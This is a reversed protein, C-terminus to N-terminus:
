LSIRNIHILTYLQITLLDDPAQFFVTKLKFPRFSAVVEKFMGVASHYNNNM